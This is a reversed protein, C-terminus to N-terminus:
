VPASRPTLTTSTGREFATLYRDVAAANERIENKVAALQGRKAATSSAQTQQFHAIADTILAHGTTYFDLLADGIATELDDANFRHIDCGPM